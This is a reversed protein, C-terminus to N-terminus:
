QVDIGGTTAAYVSSFFYFFSHSRVSHLCWDAVCCPHTQLHSILFSLKHALLVCVSTKEEELLSNSLQQAVPLILRVLIALIYLPFLIMLLNFNIRFFAEKVELLFPLRFMKILTSLAPFLLLIEGFWFYGEPIGEWRLCYPNFMMIGRLSRWM